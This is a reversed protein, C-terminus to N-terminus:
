KVRARIAFVATLNTEGVKQVELPSKASLLHINFFSLNSQWKTVIMHRVGSEHWRRVAEMPSLRADFLWNMQPSWLPIVQVGTSRFRRQYGPADALVVPPRSPAADGARSSTMAKLLIRVTEDTLDTPPPVRRAFAPWDQLPTRWPSVPLALTAPIMGIVFFAMWGQTLFGRSSSVLTGLSVGAALVGLVFAPSALRLSYFPGGNTYRVSMAWLMLVGASAALALAAEPRRRLAGILLVVWGVAALPAYLLVYRGIESWGAASHLVAGFAEADHEIWAVFRGNVPLNVLPLSYFPNGTLVLTRLPWVLSPLTGGAFAMWARRDARWVLLGLLGLVPFILGYERASAGVVAFIGALGAWRSARTEKWTHIAFAVGTLSLATLGTEQGLLVSWTLFPSAAAALCTFRAAQLGGIRGALQWLLEHISWLQLLLAPITWHPAFDGGCGYAWAHLASAGPPISEVWFYSLFDEATRPPYFDLTGLRLMQEALFSWRFEVDPGALPEHWVKWGVAIWFLVYLPTWAGMGGFARSAAPPQQSSSLPARLSGHDSLRASILAALAIVVLGVTLSGASIRISALQLALVTAYISVASGAFCTAVTRPVRMAGALAAGPVLLGALLLIVKAVVWAM